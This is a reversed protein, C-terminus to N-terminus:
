GVGGGAGLDDRRFYRGVLPIRARDLYPDARYVYLLWAVAFLAVAVTGSLLLGSFGSLHWAFLCAALWTLMPLAGLLARACVYRLYEGVGVGVERCAMVLLIGASIVNPIATGLAAGVLGYPQVLAISILVNAIGMGLWVYAARSVDSVGMLIPLAAGRVPLFILFSAVLVQLAPGGERQFRDDIWWGIFEPGMFLLFGGVLLSFSLSVKSWKLFLARLGEEDGKGRLLTAKPMVVIAIAAIFEMLYLTLSNAVSYVSVDSVPRFAGIVLADTRFALRGGVALLMVVAGYSFLRGIIARQKGGLRFRVDPCRRRVVVVAAILEFLTSAALVIALCFVSAEVALLAVTLGARLIWSVLMVLNRPVWLDHAELVALPLHAVFGFSVAVMALWYAPRSEALFSPPIDYAGVFVAYLGAGIAFAVVSMWWYLSLASSVTQNVRERDEAAVAEALYRVTAAPLGGRVLVLYATLSTIVLWVGHGDASLVDITYPTLAYTVVISVITVVWNSGVNKLM